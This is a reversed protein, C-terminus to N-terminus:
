VQSQKWSGGLFEHSTMSVLHADIHKGEKFYFQRRTGEHKMGIKLFLDFAPNGEFTEGWIVNLNQNMFGHSLLTKLAAWAYGQRQYEPAIYLSFEARQNLSDIDTLGCVGVLRGDFIGFMEIKPDVAIKEFWKEHNIPELSNNQRCWKWISYDNRWMFTDDLHFKKNLRDLTIGHNFDIM